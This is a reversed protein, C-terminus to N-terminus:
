QVLWDPSEERVSVTREKREEHDRKVRLASPDEPDREEMRDLCALIELPGKDEQVVM